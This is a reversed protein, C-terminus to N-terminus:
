GDVIVLCERDSFYSQICALAASHVGLQYFKRVLVSHMRDLAKNNDIYIVELQAGEEIQGVFFSVFELLHTCM